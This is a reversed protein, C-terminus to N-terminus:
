PRFGSAMVVGAVIIGNRVDRVVAAVSPGSWM